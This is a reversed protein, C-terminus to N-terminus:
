WCSAGMSARSRRGGAVPKELTLTLTDDVMSACRRCPSTDASSSASSRTRPMTCRMPHCRHGIRRWSAAVGARAAGPVRDDPTRRSAAQTMALEIAVLREIIASRASGVRSVRPMSAPMSMGSSPMSRRGSRLPCTAPRLPRPCDCWSVSSISPCSPPAARASDGSRRCRRRRRPVGSCARRGSAAVPRRTACTRRASSSGCPVAAHGRRRSGRSRQSRRRAVRHPDSHGRQGMGRRTRLGARRDARSPRRQRSVPTGGGRPLVRRHGDGGAVTAETEHM